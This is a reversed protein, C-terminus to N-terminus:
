EILAPPADDGLLPHRRTRWHRAAVVVARLTMGVFGACVIWYIVSKPVPIFSMTQATRLSLAASLWAGVGYFAISMLDALTALGRGLGRPFWRYFVEVFIHTNRRVARVAGVFTVAILLYRAAEETWALSDNMVYRTFFQAFVTLALLWFLALGGYDEPGLERWSFPIEPEEPVVIHHEVIDDEAATM